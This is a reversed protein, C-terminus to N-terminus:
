TRVKRGLLWGTALYEPLAAGSVKKVVSGSHIWRTGFQHNNQGVRNQAKAAESMKQKTRKLHKRGLWHKGAKRSRILGDSIAKRYEPTDRKEVARKIFGSDIQLIEKLRKRAEVTSHLRYRNVYEFGNEGGLGINMCLPDCYFAEILEREKALASEADLYIFLVNKQLKERGYKEIARKIYTGSGLYDDDPEMTKHFGFYYKGNVLNVTKYVTYKVIM